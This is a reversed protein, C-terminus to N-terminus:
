KINENNKKVLDIFDRRLNDKDQSTIEGLIVNIDDFNAKGKYKSDRLLIGFEAVAAALKFNDSTNKFLTPSQELVKEILQSKNGNPKKYRLKITAYDNSRTATKSLEKKQYKLKDITSVYDSQTGTPIIEYLATVTHGVGIEGADKKDDNFDEDALLRNEYGILRYHSVYKPNFEIQLKVDKALTHLTGGFEKVFTKQAEKLDDIYAYNGNGKNSLLELKDDKYNGMGFGLISLFVGSKRKEEIMKELDDASSIGVNFDGDTALIVRNNGNPIFNETAIKYALEIGEGGATSGGAQLNDLAAVIASKEKGYTPALVLGAAGAYVVISVRDEDRLEKVLLAFGQKVLPLKNEDSMSGSVDILFVLNSAPLKPKEMKQAQLAVSCLQLEKNWPCSSLETHIAIPEDNKPTDYQYDFYNILEEIRVADTPPKQGANIFRRVNTYSARDVDISFTSLPNKNTPLFSNEQFHRYAEDNHEPKVVNEKKKRKFFDAMKLSNSSQVRVGDVMYITGERRPSKTRSDGKQRKARGFKMGKLGKMNRKRVKKVEESTMVSGSTTCDSRVIPVKYVSVVVEDLIQSNVELKVDLKTIVGGNLVVGRISQTAMGVYNVEFNYTGPDVNVSYNGEFNTYVTAKVIDGRSLKVYADIVEDGSKTETVKGQLTAQSQALINASLCFSFLLLYFLQKM